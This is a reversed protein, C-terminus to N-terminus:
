LEEYFRSYKEALQVFSFEQVYREKANMEMQERKEDNEIVKCVAEAIQESSKPDILYGDVGDRVIEPTGDVRTAVITRGVSYAEIPTLPLGEWLSSLVILDLQSMLNQVDKRYGLFKIYEEIGLKKVLSFLKQEDEGNGAIVFRTQPYKKLIKPVSEIFYEMGKQESLRGINGVVFNGDDHLKRIYKDEIYDGDFPKVANHIVSVQKEPIRFYDVLNKKVMKGVAIVKTNRYAFRTLLKKDFFTNHANAIKIISSGFLIETYFAAMRHHSHIVTIQEKEVIQKVTRCIKFMDKKSSIDPIQYHKIGMETLKEVNVGGCSCVVIKNVKPKFVECLQLVVNETGGLMMTRTFFLINQKGLDM